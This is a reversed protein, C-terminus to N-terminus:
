QSQVQIAQRLASQRELDIQRLQVIQNRLANQSLIVIQVFHGSQNQLARSNKAERMVYRVSKMNQNQQLLAVFHVFPNRAIVRARLMLRESPPIVSAVGAKVERKLTEPIDEESDVVTVVTVVVEDVHDVVDTDDTVDVLEEEEVLELM